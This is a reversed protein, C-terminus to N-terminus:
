GFWVPTKRSIDLNRILRDPNDNLIQVAYERGYRNEVLTFIDEMWTTRTRSSHADSAIFSVFRRQVMSHALAEVRPGFRGQLSGKNAQLYCGMDFWENLIQPDEMVYYYREPHAVVPRLGLDLLSELIATAEDAYNSFPFEILTYVSGALPCLIGEQMMEAVEPTGFIEMGEYLELPIENDSLAERFYTLSQRMETAGSVCNDGPINCHPTVIIGSVGSQVAMSAMMLSDGIDRSGDDVGPLIHAHIDIM